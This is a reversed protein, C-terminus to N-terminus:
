KSSALTELFPTLEAIQPYDLGRRKLQVFDGLALSAGNLGREIAISAVFTYLVKAAEIQGSFALGHALNIKHISETPEALLGLTAETIVKAPQKMYLYLEASYARYHPFKPDLKLVTAYDAECAAFDGAILRYALDGRVIYANPNTPDVAVAQKFDAAALENKKQALWVYGRAIYAESSSPYEAIVATLLKEAQVFDKKERAARAEALQAVPDAAFIATPLAFILLLILRNLM